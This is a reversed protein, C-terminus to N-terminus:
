EVPCRKYFFKAWGSGSKHKEWRVLEFDGNLAEAFQEKTLTATTEPMPRCSVLTAQGIQRTGVAALTGSWNQGDAMQKTSVGKVHFSLPLPPRAGPGRNWITLKGTDFDVEYPFHETSIIFEDPGLVREVVGGGKCVRGVRADYQYVFSARDIFCGEVLAIKDRFEAYQKELWAPAREKGKYLVKPWSFAEPQKATEPPKEQIKLRPAPERRETVEWEEAPLPKVTGDALKVLLVKRGDQVASGLFTGVLKDGSKSTLVDGSAHSALVFVPWLWAVKRM